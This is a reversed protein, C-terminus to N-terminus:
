KQEAKKLARRRDLGAKLIRVYEIRDNRRAIGTNTDHIRRRSLIQPLLRNKLKQEMARAYWDIGEGVRNWRTDFLGVRLFSEKKILMTNANYGPLVRSKEDLKAKPGDFFEPSIFQEIHGFVMDLDPDEEFIQLQLSLKDPTWLDDHDLFSLFKGKSEEVGKNRASGIGGNLQEFYRVAPFRRIVEATNDTSGDNVTIIEIHQYSQALVSEVAEAVYREGNYVPIIVSVLPNPDMVSSEREIRIM